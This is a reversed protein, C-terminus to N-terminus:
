DAMRLLEKRESGRRFMRIILLIGCNFKHPYSSIAVAWTTLHFPDSAEKTCISM